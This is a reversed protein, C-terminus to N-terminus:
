STCRLDTPPDGVGFRTWDEVTLDRAAVACAAAIWDSPDLSLVRVSSGLGYTQMPQIATVLRDGDPSFASVAWTDEEQPVAFTGFEAGRDLDVLHVTGDLGGSVAMAGDQTVVVPPQAAVEAPLPDALRGDPALEGVRRGDFVLLRSDADYAAGAVGDPVESTTVRDTAIEVMALQAPTRAGLSVFASTQDPAIGVLLPRNGDDELVGALATSRVSSGARLDVTEVLGSERLLTVRGDPDGDGVVAVVDSEDGTVGGVTRSTRSPPDLVVLQDDGTVGLVTGDDLWTAGDIFSEGRPLPWQTGDTLDVVSSGQTDSEVILAQTGDPSVSVAPVRCV